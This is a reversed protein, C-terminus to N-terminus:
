QSDRTCGAHLLGPCLTLLLPHFFFPLRTRQVTDMTGSQKERHREPVPRSVAQAKSNAQTVSTKTLASSAVASISLPASPRLVDSRGGGGVCACGCVCVFLGSEPMFVAVRWCGTSCDTRPWRFFSLHSLTSKSTM